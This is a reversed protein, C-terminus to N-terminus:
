TTLPGRGRGRSQFHPRSQPASLSWCPAPARLGVAVLFCIIGSVRPLKSGSGQRASGVYSGARGRLPPLSAPRSESGCFRPATLTPQVFGGVKPHRQACHFAFTGEPLLPSDKCRLSRPWCLHFRLYKETGKRFTQLPRSEPM